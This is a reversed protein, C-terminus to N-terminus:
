EVQVVESADPDTIEVIDCTGSPLDDIHVLGNADTTYDRTEGTTLRIKLGVGSIPVDTEDNVVRFEIWDTEEEVAAPPAEEATEDAGAAAESDPESEDSSEGPGVLRPIGQVRLVLDFYRRTVQWAFQQIVEDDKLRIIDMFPLLESLAYRLTAMNLPDHMFERLFDLMLLRDRFELPVDASDREHSRLIEVRQTDTELIRRM